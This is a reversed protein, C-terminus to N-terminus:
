SGSPRAARRPTTQSSRGCARPTTTKSRTRTEVEVIAGDATVGPIHDQKTGQVLAPQRHRPLAARINGYGKQALHNVVVLVIQDHQTQAKAIRYMM